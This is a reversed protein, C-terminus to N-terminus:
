RSDDNERKRKMMPNSVALEITEIKVTGKHAITSAEYKARMKELKREEATKRAEIWKGFWQKGEQTCRFGAYVIGICILSLIIIEFLQFGLWELSKCKWEGKKGLQQENTSIDINMFDVHTQGQDEQTVIHDCERAVTGTKSYM